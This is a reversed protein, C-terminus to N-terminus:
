LLSNIIFWSELVKFRMKIVLGGSNRMWWGFVSNACGKGIKQFMLQGAKRQLVEESSSALTLLVKATFLACTLVTRYTVTSHISWLIHTQLVLMHLRLNVSFLATHMCGSICTFYVCWHCKMILSFM